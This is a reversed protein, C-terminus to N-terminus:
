ENLVFNRCIETMDDIDNRDLRFFERRIRQHEFHKHLYNELEKFHATQFTFVYSYDVVSATNLSMIRADLSLTMGIKYINQKAYDENTAVYLFGSNEEFNDRHVLEPNAKLWRQFKAIPNRISPLVESSVWMLFNEALPLKCKFILQYLGSENILITRPHWNSPTEVDRPGQIENWNKKDGESVHSRIAYDTDKYGLFAAVDKAKFWPNNDGDVYIWLELQKEGLSYHQKSLAM